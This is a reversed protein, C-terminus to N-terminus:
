AERRWFSSFGGLAPVFFNAIIVVIIPISAPTFTAMKALNYPLLGLFYSETIAFAYDHGVVVGCAIVSGILLINEFGSLNIIIM